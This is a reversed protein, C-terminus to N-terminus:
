DRDLHGPRFAGDGQQQRLRDVPGRLDGRRAGTVASVVLYVAFDPDTERAAAILKLVEDVEPSTIEPSDIRGPSAKSAPNFMLMDWAVAQELASHIM